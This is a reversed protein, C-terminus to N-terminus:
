KTIKALKAAMEEITHESGCSSLEVKGEPSLIVWSPVHRCDGETIDNFNLNANYGQPLIDTEFKKGDKGDIVNVWINAKEKYIAWIDSEYTPIARRCHPCYTGGFMIVSPKGFFDKLKSEEDLHYGEIEAPKEVEGGVPTNSDPTKDESHHCASLM